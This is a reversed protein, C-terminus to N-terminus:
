RATPDPAIQSAHHYDSAVVGWAPKPRGSFDLLGHNNFPPDPWPNGGTYGYASVSDQLLFYIEGSLWPKSNFVALHYGVAGAQFGYTGREDTPGARNADFGFETVFLAQHPYCKRFSDLFPGLADRDDTTGGGADYWGFYENVGIADLAALGPDCPNGPWDSISMGVPRTPDLRHALAVSSSIYSTEAQTSPAPLENGVSWMMVSPHNQNALIEDRLTTRTTNVWVPMRLYPDTVSNNVPVDLWLLLGDRDAMEAIQPNPADLRIVTAGLARVWGVLRRLQAPDLAGGTHLNQERFEVGRLDLVRGNLTIRGARTVKISRIGSYTLYGGLPRGRADTLTVSARYLAPHGPAWLRPHAVRVGAQATVTAHPPITVPSFRLTQNGFSGTLHLTQPARTLNRLQVRTQVTAACSPCPLLPRVVVQQLDATQVARLYVERLLGGYNWWGGGPGPPLEGLLIRNDVRVVLRNVGPRLSSLDFEFPLNAGTHHGLLHGNLWVTARYNVSEFRVIWRRASAPVYSAFAGRPVTFDRRYWGVSGDMGTLSFNGTNFTNPVAVPSWGASSSRDRWWGASQGADGPDARYLWRGGLLYRGSQGDTYLAGKTPPAASPPTAARAVGGALLVISLALALSRAPVNADNLLGSRSLCFPLPTRNRPLLVGPHVGISTRLKGDYQAAAAKEAGV